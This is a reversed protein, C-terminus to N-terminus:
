LASFLCPNKGRVKKNKRRNVKSACDIAKEVCELIKEKSWNMSLAQAVPGNFADGVAVDDDAVFKVLTFEIGHVNIASPVPRKGEMEDVSDMSMDKQLLQMSFNTRMHRRLKQFKSNNFEHQAIDHVCTKTERGAKRFIFNYRKEVEKQAKSVWSSKNKLHVVYVGVAKNLWATSFEGQLAADFIEDSTLATELTGPVTLNYQSALKQLELLQFKHVQSKIFDYLDQAYTMLKARGKKKRLNLEPQLQKWDKEYKLIHEKSLKSFDGPLIKYSVVRFTIPNGSSVAMSSSRSKSSSPMTASPSIGDSNGSVSGSLTSQDEFAQSGVREPVAGDEGSTNAVRVHQVPRNQSYDDESDSDDSDQSSGHGGGGGRIAAPEEDDLDSGAAGFHGGARGQIARPEEDLGLALSSAGVSHPLTTEEDFATQSLVHDPVAGRGGGQITLLMLTATTPASAISPPDKMEM